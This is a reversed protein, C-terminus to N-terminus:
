RCSISGKLPLPTASSLPPTKRAHWNCRVDLYALACSFSARAKRALLAQASETFFGVQQQLRLNEEELAVRFRHDASRSNEDQDSDQSDGVLDDITVWDTM